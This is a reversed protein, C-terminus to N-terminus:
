VLCYFTFLSCDTCDIVGCFLMRVIFNCNTLHSMRDPLQRNHPRDRLNYNHDAPPTLLAQLVHCPNHLIETFIRTDAVDYSSYSMFVSLLLSYLSLYTGYPVTPWSRTLPVIRKSFIYTRLDCSASCYWCNTSTFDLYQRPTDYNVMLTKIVHMGTSSISKSILWKWLNQVEM